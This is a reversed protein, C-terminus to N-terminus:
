SINLFINKDVLILNFLTAMLFFCTLTAFDSVVVSIDEKGELQCSYSYIFTYNLVNLQENMLIIITIITTVAAPVFSSSQRPM